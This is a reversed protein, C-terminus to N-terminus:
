VKKYILAEAIYVNGIWKGKMMLFKAFCSNTCAAAFYYGIVVCEFRVLM